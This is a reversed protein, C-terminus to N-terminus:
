CICFKSKTLLCSKNWFIKLIGVPFSCNLIFSIV